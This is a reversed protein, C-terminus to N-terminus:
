MEIWIAHSKSEEQVSLNDIRAELQEKADIDQQSLEYSSSLYERTELFYIMASPSFDLHETM